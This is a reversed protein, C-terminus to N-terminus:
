PIVVRACRTISRFAENCRLKTLLGLHVLFVGTAPKLFECRWWSGLAPSSIVGVLLMVGIRSLM